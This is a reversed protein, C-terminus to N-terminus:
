YIRYPNRVFRDAEPRNPSTLTVSDWQLRKGVRIALNGLLVMETLPGAHDTLNSGAAPGGKCARIWERYHGGKVRPLLRPPKGIKKMMKEPFIRVSGAYTNAMICAKEGYFVQGNGAYLNRGKELQPPRPPKRKGDYWVVKCPPMDGRAPFMYTIVSGTPTTDPDPADSEAEIWLPSRLDLAWFAADMIHCGMDGLAGCGFDWWGRWKFPHYAPNYPREPAVGLWLNWDLTPPLPPHERPPRIGQPWIPRNSYLHVERVPGIAGSRIWEYILRTGENAHGQNGMQTAVGYKKAALAV